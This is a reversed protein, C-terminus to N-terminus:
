APGLSPAHMRVIVGEVRPTAIAAPPHPYSESDVRPHQNSLRNTPHKGPRKGHQGIRPM